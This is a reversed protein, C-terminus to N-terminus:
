PNQEQEPEEQAPAVLQELLNQGADQLQDLGQSQAQERLATALADGDIGLAPSEM